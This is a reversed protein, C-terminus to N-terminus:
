QIGVHENLVIPLWIQYAPSVALAYEVEAVVVSGPQWTGAMQAFEDPVNQGAFNQLLMTNVAYHEPGWVGGPSNTGQVIYLDHSAFQVDNHLPAAHPAGHAWPMVRGAGGSEASDVYPDSVALAPGQTDVGAATVYHGGIRRWADGQMQWFGILLVVDESRLVERRVWDFEPAKVLTVSYKGWLGHDVLYRIVADRMDHVETGRHASGTRLGDTDMRFALDEVLEGNPSPPTSPDDVNRPDHDDWVDPNYSWVLPYNDNLVTPPQPAPEFKSDFWWLSNAVAAPGCYTWPGEGQAARWGDQKQDIDPMGSPAYDIWGGAKWFITPTVTVRPTPTQTPTDTLRATATATNTVRPTPTVTATNTARLTPTVTPTNTVRPTPTVTGTNTVRPTATLTPTDTVRPTMTETATKTGVTTATDTVRPTATATGTSTVRSTPTRTSTATATPTSTVRPTTTLSPTATRTPTATAPKPSVAVGWEVVTVLTGQAYTSGCQSAARSCNQFAFNGAIQSSNVATTYDLPGWQAPLGVPAATVGYPDHSVYAADNHTAPNGPHAPHAVPLVYPVGLSATEAMDYFPDSFAVWPSQAQTTNYGIATVYHGGVRQPIQGAQLQWFGLLLIVDQSRAIQEVVWDSFGPAPMVEIDYDGAVGQHDLFMSIGNILDEVYTGAAAGTDTNLADALEQVLPMVNQPSHDDWAGYSHVLPYSDPPKSGDEFKSDFWWFSNAVAVPGCYTWPGAAPPRQWADQKQDFDPVGSPAYDLYPLKFVWGERPPVAQLAWRQPSQRPVASAMGTTALLVFIAAVIAVVVLTWISFRQQWGPTAAGNM